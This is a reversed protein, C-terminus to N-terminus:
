SRQCHIIFEQCARVDGDCSALFFLFPQLAYPNLKALTAALALDWVSAPRGCDVADFLRGVIDNAGDTLTIKDIQAFLSDDLSSALSDLLLAPDLSRAVEAVRVFSGFERNRSAKFMQLPSVCPLYPAKNGFDESLLTGQLRELALSREGNANDGKTLLRKVSSVIDLAVGISFPSYGTEAFRRLRTLLRQKPHVSAAERRFFASLLQLEPESLRINEPLEVLDSISIGFNSLENAISNAQELSLGETQSFYAMEVWSLRNGSSLSCLRRHLPGLNSLNEPDFSILGPFQGILEKMADLIPGHDLDTWRLVERVGIIGFNELEAVLPGCARPFSLRRGSQEFAVAHGLWGPFDLGTESLESARSSM